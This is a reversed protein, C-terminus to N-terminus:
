KREPHLLVRLLFKLPLASSSWATVSRENVCDLIGYMCFGLM